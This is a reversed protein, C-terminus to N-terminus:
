KEKKNSCVTYNLFIEQIRHQTVKFELNLIIREDCSILEVLILQCVNKLGICNYPM